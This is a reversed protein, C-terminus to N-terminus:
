KMKRQEKFALSVLCVSGNWVVMVSQVHSVEATEPRDVVEVGNWMATTRLQM